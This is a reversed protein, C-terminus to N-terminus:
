ATLVEVGTQTILVMHEKQASRACNLTSETWGDSFTWTDPKLGQVLAPEITFSHGPQMYGPQDNRQHIIWPQRHFETGIGHGDFRAISHGRKDALAQIAAGIAKFPKGPACAAIGAELADATDRVLARGPEDVDGVLFTQSTDGHYGDLYVTIDINVIDGDELEREDPIGHCVVNNVSTCCSAPFGKYGLPSPYAGNSLIYEHVQKDIAETSIGPKRVLSGAFALVNKALKASQRLKVEAETGLTIRADGLTFGSGLKPLWSSSAIYSPRTIHPPVPRLLQVRKPEAVPEPPLIVSYIGFADIEALEEDTFDHEELDLDLAPSPQSQVPSFAYHRRCDGVPSSLPSAKTSHTRALRSLM